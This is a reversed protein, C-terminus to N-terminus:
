YNKMTFYRKNIMELYNNTLNPLLKDPVFLNSIKFTKDVTFYYPLGIEEAPIDLNLVNYIPRDQLGLYKKMINMSKNNEYSGLFVIHNKGTNESMKILKLISYTVCEQCHLESFRCILLNDEGHFLDNITVKHNTSDTLISNELSVGNSLLNINFNTHYSRLQNNQFIEITNLIDKHYKKLSFLKYLLFVNLLVMLVTFLFIWKKNTFLM